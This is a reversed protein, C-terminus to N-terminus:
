VFREMDTKEYVPLFGFISINSDEKRGREAGNVPM